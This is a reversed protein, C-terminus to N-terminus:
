EKQKKCKEYENFKASIFNISEQLKNIQLEGKFQSEQTIKVMAIMENMKQEFSRLCKENLHCYAGMLFIELATSNLAFSDSLSDQRAKKYDEGDNSQDSLDHKKSSGSKFYNAITM